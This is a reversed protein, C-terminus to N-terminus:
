SVVKVRVKCKILNGTKDTSCSKYFYGLKSHKVQTNTQFSFRKAKSRVNDPIMKLTSSIVEGFFLIECM